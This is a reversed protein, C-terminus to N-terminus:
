VEISDSTGFIQIWVKGDPDVALGHCASPGTFSDNPFNKVFQWQASASGVCLLIAICFATFFKAM